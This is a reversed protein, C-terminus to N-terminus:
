KKGQNADAGMVPAASKEGKKIFKSGFLASDFIGKYLLLFKRV